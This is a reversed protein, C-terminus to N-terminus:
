RGTGLISGLPGALQSLERQQLERARALADNVAAVILDALLSPDRLDAQPDFRLRLLEGRGNAVATVMGAGSQGTVERRALEEQRRQAEAQLKQAQQFLQGLDFDM